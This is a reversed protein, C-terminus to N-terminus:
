SILCAIVKIGARQVTANPITPLSGTGSRQLMIVRPGRQGGTANQLTLTGGAGVTITGVSSVVSQAVSGPSVTGETIVTQETPGLTIEQEAAPIDFMDASVVAYPDM